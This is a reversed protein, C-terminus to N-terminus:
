SIANRLNITIEYIHRLRNDAPVTVTAGLVTYQSTNLTGSAIQGEILFGLRISYVAAWNTVADATVYQSVAGNSGIGYQVKMVDVGPVLPQITWAGASLVARMLASQGGQGQGVFFATQQLPIFQSGIQYNMTFTDSVNGYSGSGAVHSITTGTVATIQFISTKVCDSVAAFQGANLTMGATGQVTLSDSGTDITTVGAPYSGPPAGLVVLVDSTKIVNGVLTSDLTPTWDDANTDNAANDQTININTGGNYGTIMSPITNLSGLPNSGGGNLNSVVTGVAACGVFGASRIVPTVLNAIANETNQILDQSNTTKYIQVQAVYVEMVAYSLLLGIITAVMLEILSFGQQRNKNM